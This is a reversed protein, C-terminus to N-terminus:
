GSRLDVPSRLMTGSSSDRTGSEVMAANFSFTLLQIKSVSAPFYKLPLEDFSEVHGGANFSQM